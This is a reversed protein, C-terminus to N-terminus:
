GGEALIAALGERWGPYRWTIGLAAKTRTNAIRRNESWFSLAMPSMTNRAEAFPIAPPPDRGLLRAAGETVVASEAPEDDALHLVRIGPPPPATAAALVARAIDDRHIRGFAHGPKLVRRARGARLDDLVSRGPGYIGACRFLDVAAGPAFAEWQAEAARRRISRPQTPAPATGEDVWAGGRDGYVGTTSLYGIWRLPAQRLAPGHAALAPDGGEGPPATVVLHTATALAPGAAGFPLLAVGEPAEATDPNRATARVRWGAARAARAIATGSYGLGIILLDPTM